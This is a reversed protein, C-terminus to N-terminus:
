PETWLQQSTMMTRARVLRATQLQPPLTHLQPPLTHLQLEPTPRQCSCSLASGPKKDYMFCAVQNARSLLAVKDCHM